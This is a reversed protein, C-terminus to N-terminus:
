NLKFIRDYIKEENSKIIKRDLVEGERLGSIVINSSSKMDRITDVALEYISIERGIEFNFIGNELIKDDFEAWIDIFSKIDTAIKKIDKHTVTLPLNNKAQNRFIHIELIFPFRVAQIIKGNSNVTKIIEEVELKDKGFFNVPNYAEDSSLFIFRKVYESNLMKNIFKKTNEVNVNHYYDRYIENYKTNKIVASHIVIDPKLTDMLNLAEDSYADFPIFKVKENKISKEVVVIENENIDTGIVYFGKDIYYKALELGVTGCVGTIYVNNKM